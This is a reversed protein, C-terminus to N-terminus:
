HQDTPIYSLAIGLGMNKDLQVCVFDINHEIFKDQERGIVKELEQTLTGDKVLVVEDPKLTQNYISDLAKKFFSPNEKNYISILVSLKLM